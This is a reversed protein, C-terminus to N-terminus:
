SRKDSDYQTKTVLGSVSPIKTDIANIKNISQNHVTKKVVDNDMVNNLKSLGDPVSKLKDANLKDAKAKLDALNVKFELTSTDIGTAAKM